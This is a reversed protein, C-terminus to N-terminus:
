SSAMRIADEDTLARVSALVLEEVRLAAQDVTPSEFILSVPIETGFARIMRATARVALLSHGGLVFFDDTAGVRRAGLVDAWIRAIADETPTRPVVYEVPEPAAPTPLAQRDLKGSPLRPLHEIVAISSPIAYAPLRQAAYERLTAATVTADATVVFCAIRKDTPTAQWVTAAIDAVGPCGRLVTEVEGLEIRVGRIKVQRDQRDLFHLLGDRGRWGRDGTRYLREGQRFPHPRFADATRRPDHLYGRALGVGGIYLDGPEGDAVPDLNGDLVLVENRDIPRGLSVAATTAEGDAPGCVHCTSDISVETAGWTNDLSVRAGFCAFFRAALAPRLAEGSSLVSRLASLRALDAPTLTELFLELMAPVFSLHVAQYEVAAEIIARPDRHLRPPLMAVRGGVILPWFLEVASDDFTLTTKHLVTEGPRLGHRHQMWTLRNLWGEHTCAVGKPRGTSGSTYYVACLNAGNVRPPSGAAASSDPHVVDLGAARLEAICTDDAALVVAARADEIIQRARVPPTSTELPLYAAGARMIGLLAAALTVSRDLLVAVTDDVGVGRDALAGALAEARAMLDRYTLASSGDVVAVADPTRAAQAAVADHLTPLSQQDM